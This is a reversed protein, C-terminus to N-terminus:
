ACIMPSLDSNKDVSPPSPRKFVWSGFVLFGVAHGVVAVLFVGGNFSMVALMVLYALGARLTHVLTQILGVAVPGSGKRAIDSHSLFEVLFALIFVFFLVLVYMGSSSGPWGPFLIEGNKGWFFTMHMMHHMGGGMGTPSAGTATVPPPGMDEMGNM